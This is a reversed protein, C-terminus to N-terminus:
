GWRVSLCQNHWKNYGRNWSAETMQSWIRLFCWPWMSQKTEILQSGNLSHLQHFSLHPSLQILLNLPAIRLLLCVRYQPLLSVYSTTSLPSEQHCGPSWIPGLSWILTPQFLLWHGLGQAKEEEDWSVWQKKVQRWFWPVNGTKTSESTTALITLTLKIQDM